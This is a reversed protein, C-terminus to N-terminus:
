GSLPHLLLIMANGASSHSLESEGCSKPKVKERQQVVPAYASSCPVQSLRTAM